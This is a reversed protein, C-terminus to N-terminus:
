PIDISFTDCDGLQGSNMGTQFWRSRQASTGHTFSEPMPVRGASRQLTDDGIRRAANVAEEFDGPEIAGFQDRVGRAWIGALCDAQLEIRVSIDNAEVKSAKERLQNAQGLIGLVDQVHHGVEHAVVYAMAFDGRAGLENAMTAFFATDLYVKKDGPCYFPGTAGSASGCPSSTVDKFLVLTVPRYTEGLQDKFVRAWIAETDGLVVGVFQGATKDAETLPEGGTTVTQGGDGTLLPSLDIGFFWGVVVIALVGLGGGVSATGGLRRGGSSRRDEINGSQRRGRWEM